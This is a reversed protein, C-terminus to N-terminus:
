FLNKPNRSSRKAKGSGSSYFDLDRGLHIGDLRYTARVQLTYYVDDKKPNGRPHYKLEDYSYGLEGGRFSLQASYSNNIAPDFEAPVTSSVDDLYDTFTKRFSTEIGLTFMESVEYRVGVGLQLNLKTLSYKRDAYDPNNLLQGETGIDHLNVSVGNKDTTKPNHHYVGPGGFVYPVIASEGSNLFDYEGLFAVEWITNRFSLNRQRYDFRSNLKDDGKIGLVSMNLRARFQDTIDYSGGLSLVPSVEKFVPAGQILDGLYASGGLSVSGRVRQSFSQQSMLILVTSFALLMKKTSFYRKM